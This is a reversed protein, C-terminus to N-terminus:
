ELKLSLQISSALSVAPAGGDPRSRTVRQESSPVASGGRRAEGEGRWGTQPAVKGPGLARMVSEQVM